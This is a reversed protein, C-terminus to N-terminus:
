TARLVLLTVEPPSGLRIPPGWFGTGRSVYVWMDKYKRLGHAFRDTLSVVWTWPYFQGGHTHGSILLDFGEAEATKVLRTQHSLLIKPLVSEKAVGLAKAPDPGEEGITVAMGDPVGAFLIKAGKHHLVQHENHLTKLGLKEFTAIWATAGWYYEHNGTVYYKAHHARLRSLPEAEVGYVQANGDGIDGTLVVVDPACENALAVVEEVFDSRIGASVHMDSLQVIKFGDLERSMGPMAVEVKKIAVGYRAGRYGLAMSLLSVGMIAMSVRPNTSVGKSFFSLVDRALVFVLLFSLYGMGLYALRQISTSRTHLKNGRRMQVMMYVFALMAAYAGGVTVIGFAQAWGTLPGLLSEIVHAVLLSVLILIIWPM